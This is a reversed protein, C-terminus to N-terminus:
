FHLQAQAAGDPWLVVEVEDLGLEERREYVRPVLPEDLQRDEGEVPADERRLPRAADELPEDRPQADVADDVADRGDEAAEGDLLEPVRLHRPVAHLSALKM